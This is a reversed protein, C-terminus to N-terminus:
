SLLFHEGDRAESDDNEDDEELILTVQGSTTQSILPVFGTAVCNLMFDIPTESSMLFLPLTMILLSRGVVEFLWALFFHCYVRWKPPALVNKDSDRELAVHGAHDIMLAWYFFNFDKGFVGMHDAVEQVAFATVWYAYPYQFEEDSALSVQLGSVYYGGLAGQLLVVLVLRFRNIWDFTEFISNIDVKKSRKSNGEADEPFYYYSVWDKCNM